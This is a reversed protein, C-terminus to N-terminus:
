VFIVFEAMTSKRFVLCTHLLVISFPLHHPNAWRNERQIQPVWVRWTWVRDEGKAMQPDYEGCIKGLSFRLVMVFSAGSVFIGVKCKTLFNCWVCHYDMVFLLSWTKVHHIVSMAFKPIYTIIRSM